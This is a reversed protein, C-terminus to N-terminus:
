AMLEDIKAKATAYDLDYGSVNRIGACIPLSESLGIDTIPPNFDGDYPADSTWTADICQSMLSVDVDWRAALKIIDGVAWVKATTIVTTGDAMRFGNNRTYIPSIVDYIGSNGAVGEVSSASPTYELFIGQRTNSHNAIDLYYRVADTAIPVATTTFIPGGKRITSKTKVLHCEANGIYVEDGSTSLRIGIQPNVLAAQDIVIEPYTGTVQATVDQWTGGNDLTLEVTGTLTIGEIYWKSAHTDSAATIANALVRGNNSTAILKCGTNAAGTLGPVDQTVTMNTASWEVDTLDNSHLQANSLSPQTWWWATAVGDDAEDVYWTGGDLRANRFVPEDVGFAHYLGDNLQYITSAHPSTLVGTGRSLGILEFTTTDYTLAFLVPLVEFFDGSILSAKIRDPLAGTYGLDGLYEYLSDFGLDILWAKWRDDITGTHGLSGFYAYLQDTVSGTFGLDALTSKYLDDITPM